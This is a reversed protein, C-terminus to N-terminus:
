KADTPRDRDRFFPPQLELSAEVQPYKLAIAHGLEGNWHPAGKRIRQLSTTRTSHQFIMKLEPYDIRFGVIKQGLPRDPLDDDPRLFCRHKHGAVVAHGLSCHL